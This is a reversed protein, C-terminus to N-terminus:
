HDQQNLIETGAPTLSAWRERPPRIEIEVLGRRALQDFTQRLAMKNILGLHMTVMGATAPGIEQLARLADKQRPTMKTGYIMPPKSRSGNVIQTVRPSSLGISRGIARTSVRYDVNLKVVVAEREAALERLIREHDAMRKTITVAQATLRAIQEWRNAM